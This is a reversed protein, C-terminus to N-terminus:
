RDSNYQIEVNNGIIVSGIHKVGFIIDDNKKFEFGEGGIKCGARIICNDGIRTNEKIVVFEEILVNDGIIVNKKPIVARDSIKCNKGIQTYYSSRKYIDLESLYNHILFYVERPKEVICVGIDVVVKELIKAVDRTTLVVSINSTMEQIYKEHEIFTCVNDGQHYSVLGLSDFSLNKKNCTHEIDIIQLIDSIEM